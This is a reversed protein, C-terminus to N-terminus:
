ILNLYVRFTSDLLSDRHDFIFM